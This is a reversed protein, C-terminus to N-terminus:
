NIIQINPCALRKHDDMSLYDEMAVYTFVTMVAASLQPDDEWNVFSPINRKYMQFMLPLNVPNRPDSRPPLIVEPPKEKNEEEEEENKVAEEEKKPPPYHVVPINEIEVRRKKFKPTVVIVGVIEGLSEEISIFEDMTRPYQYPDKNDLFQSIVVLQDGIKLRRIYDQLVSIIISTPVSVKQKLLSALIAGRESNKTSENRLAEPVNIHVLDHNMCINNIQILIDKQATEEVLVLKASTIDRIHSFSRDESLSTNVEYYKRKKASKVSDQSYKIDIGRFRESIKNDLKISRNLPEIQDENLEDEPGLELKRFLRQKLQPFAAALHVTIYPPGLYELLRDFVEAVYEQTRDREEEDDATVEVEPLVLAESPLGDLIDAFSVKEYPEDETSKKAKIQDPLEEYAVLKYGTKAAFRRSLASKGSLTSGLFLIYKGYSREIKDDIQHSFDAYPDSLLRVLKGKSFLHTELTEEEVYSVIHDYISDSQVHYYAKQISVCHREIYEFEKIKGPYSGGIVFKKGFTSGSYIFDQIIGILLKGSVFKGSETLRIIEKGKETQRYCVSKMAENLNLYQYGRGELFSKLLNSSDNLVMVVEPEIERAIQSLSEDISLNVNIRSFYAKNEAYDLMPGAKRLYDAYEVSVQPRKCRVILEEKYLALYFLKQPAGFAVEFQKLQYQNMPYGEILFRMSSVQEMAMMLKTTVADDGVIRVNQNSSNKEWLLNEIDIYDLNYKEAMKRAITSKGCGPVGVLFFVEPHIATKLRKFVRDPVGLADVKRVINFASYYEIVEQQQSMYEQIRDLKSPNPNRRAYEDFDTICFNAIIKIGIIEKEFDLTETLNKLFGTIVYSPSPNLSFARKLLTIRTHSPPILGAELTKQLSQGDTSGRKVEQQMLSKLDLHVYGFDVSLM